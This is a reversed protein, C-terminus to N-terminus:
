ILGKARLERYNKRKQKDTIDDVFTSFENSGLRLNIVAPEKSVTIEANVASEVTAVSQKKLGRLSSKIQATQVNLQPSFAKQTSRALNETAKVIPHKARKISEAIIGFDMRNIDSLPGRKAPSFPWYDRIQGVINEVTGLIKDKVALIGDIASQIIAKGSKYLNIDFFGKIADVADSVIGKAKEMSSDIADRVSNFVSKTTSKVTNWANEVASKVSNVVTSVTSKIGNWISSATSKIANFVSSTISKIANWATQVASKVANAITTVVLKISNWVSSTVSKITNWANQVTNMVNHVAGVVLAKIANWVATFFSKIGNWVATTTSKITKWASAVFQIAARVARKFIVKIATWVVQLITKVKNFTKITWAKIKDWHKYVTVGLLIIIAIAARIPGGVLWTLVRGVTKIIPWLKKFVKWVTGVVKWLRKFVTWVTSIIPWLATLAGIVSMVIGVLLGIKKNNKFVQATWKFFANAMKLVKAGLPALAIGLNVITKVINGILKMVRPGNTKVYNIFNQFGKSQAVKSAWTAFKATLSILGQEMSKGLPGFAKMLEMFGRLVNGAITGWNKIASAGRTAFFNIFSKFQKTQSFGKFQDLLYSISKAASEVIPVLSKLLPRATNLAKTFVKFVPKETTDLFSNWAKKFKNMTDIFNQQIKSLNGKEMAKKLRAIHGVAAIGFAGVSGALATFSSALGGVAGALSATIPVLAPLVAFIGGKAVGRSVDGFNRMAQAIRNFGQMARKYDAKIPIIVKRELSQKVAMLLGMKRTAQATDADVNVSTKSMTFAHMLAKAKKLNRKLPSINAALDKNAAVGAFKRAIAKAKEISSKFPRTNADVTTHEASETAKKFRETVKKAAKIKKRYGSIDVGLKAEISYGEAMM